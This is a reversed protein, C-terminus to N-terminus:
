VVNREGSGEEDFRDSGFSGVDVLSAEGDRVLEAVLEGTAPAHM